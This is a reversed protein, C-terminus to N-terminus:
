VCNCATHDKIWLLSVDGVIEEMTLRAPLVPMKNKQINEHDLRLIECFNLPFNELFTDFPKRTPAQQALASSVSQGILGLQSPPVLASLPPPPGDKGATSPRSRKGGSDGGASGDKTQRRKNSEFPTSSRSSTATGSPTGSM